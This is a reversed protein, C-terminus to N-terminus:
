AFTGFLAGVGTTVAMTLAGWFAVRLAGAGVGAGGARAALGGLLALFLLSTGAILPIREAEPSLLTVLLPMVAGAAFSCGSALASHTPRARLSHTLGLEDRTHAGIANRAMLEGAVQKALAPRVGRASYIAALERREGEPDAKHQERERKIEAKETDKQSHMSVYEGSAM